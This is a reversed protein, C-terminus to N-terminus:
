ISAETVTLRTLRKYGHGHDGVSTDHDVLSPFKMAVPPDMQTLPEISQM